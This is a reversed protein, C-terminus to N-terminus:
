PGQVRAGGDAVILLANTDDSSLGSLANWEATALLAQIVASAAMGPDAELVLAVGGAVHPCAMSTGSKTATATDSTHGASLISSGPAWIDTCSGYNSFSSMADTSTTSGVTIASPVFAPSWECSDRPWSGIQNGAAVVVVVGNNVAADIADKMAQYKGPGQFSMSAIAPRTSSTALWDLASYVYSWQFFEGGITKVSRVNAGPAVGYTEGVATGACHTGHGDTDVACNTNGNCEVRGNGTTMDLASAARGGFQQHTTRVGTDFVFVTSGAGTRGRQDAGIRDLGWTAAEMDAEIEPILSMEHDPEVYQVVGGGRKIVHELDEETGRMELFPFGGKSPDGVLNCSNRNAKCLDHLQQTSTGQQVVVVWEQESQAMAKSADYNLVPVGAVFKHSPRADDRKHSVRLGEAATSLLVLSGLCRL